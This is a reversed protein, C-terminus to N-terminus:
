RYVDKRHGIKIVEVILETNFVTYIIRYDGSRIRYANDSGTLKKSGNPKPNEILSDIIRTINQVIPAPLGLLTKQASKKVAVSYCAM